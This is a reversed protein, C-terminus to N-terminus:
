GKMLASVEAAARLGSEVAGNMYGQWNISTHEGAFLVRGHPRALWDRLSPDFGPDFYAYGGLAWPDDEWTILRSHLLTASRVGLWDLQGVLGEVGQQAVIKQTDESAQGGAMLTLIGARGRQEENADWVAGTPADTGFARPKGKKRWFSRDFQLLAKTVRGYKLSQIARSQPAPLAPTMRIARLTTAPVAFIAYDGQLSGQGGEPTEVVVLVSTRDQRVARAVTRLHLDEAIHGALTQALRDNGGDIRYMAQQGPVDSALQDVLALLSLDEPDALFFGRLSRVVARMDDGAKVEDLWRAVSQRALRVAVPSDWRKDAVRYADVLPCLARALTDWAEDGSLTQRRRRGAAGQHPVFAFGQRLIRRLNLGQEAALRRIEHQGEDIFDGGAEAHQAEAFARRMTLVRGGVRNRAEVVTIRAGDQRLRVAAALGALGAGVIIVRTNRLVRRKM